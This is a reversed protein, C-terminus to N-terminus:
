FTKAKFNIQRTKKLDDYENLDEAKKKKKDLVNNMPLFSFVLFSYLHKIENKLLYAFLHKYSISFFARARFYKKEANMTKNINQM